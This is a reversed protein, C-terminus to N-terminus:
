RRQLWAVPSPKGSRQSPRTAPASKVRRKSATRVTKPQGTAKKYVYRPAQGPGSADVWYMGYSRVDLHVFTSNPYYGVGANDITLLFDRLASNPVGPISFDIARGTKHKSHKSYSVERYGSVVRIKRGGFEDSVRVLLEVLRPALPVQKGKRWFGLMQRIGRKADPLINGREDFVKGSWKRGPGVLSIHGRRFNKRAYKHWPQTRRENAPRTLARNAKTVPVKLVQGARIFAASRIKNLQKLETTSVAFRKAITSLAEGQRVKHKYYERPPAKRQGAKSKASKSKASKSKASKAKASKSPPTQDLYGGVIRLRQGVRLLTTEELNNDRLLASLRLGYREAITGLVEGSRVTHRRALKLEQGPRIEDADDIANVQKLLELPVGRKEAIVSLVEGARVTHVAPQRQEALAPAVTWHSCLVFISGVFIAAKRILALWRHM